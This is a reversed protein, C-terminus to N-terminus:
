APTPRDPIPGIRTRVLGTSGAAVAKQRRVSLQMGAAIRAQRDGEMGARSM